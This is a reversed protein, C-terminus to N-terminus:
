YDINDLFCNGFQFEILLTTSLDFCAIATQPLRNSCLQNCQKIVATIIIGSSYMTCNGDSRVSITQFNEVKETNPISTHIM